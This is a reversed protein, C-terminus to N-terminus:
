NSLDSSLPKKYFEITRNWSEFQGKSNGEVTGGSSFIGGSMSMCLTEKLPMIYPIPLPHGMNNYTLLEVNYPYNNEEFIELAKLCAEYSNWINDEKGAIMLIDAKSNEIKIRAEKRNEARKLSKKYTSNFGFPIGKSINKKQEEFFIDNDVKIYPFPEGKYSWSSTDNGSMLGNLAQFCYIHPQSVVVKKIQEYRSALLFALEGGKSTGHVFIEKTSTIENESIWEFVKEFYELSVEELKDPLGELAFYAVTLVNFGRSALPAALLDLADLNGDSGGLMLITKNNSNQKYFLKGIFEDSIYKTTIDESKFIRKLEVEKREISTEFIMNMIIPKDISINEAFNKGETKSKELSYILGMCNDAKYTGEIPEVLDLDVEGKENSCFVGYSSFEEGKCWPFEMKVSIKLKTNPILDSVMIKLREDVFSEVNYVNVKM